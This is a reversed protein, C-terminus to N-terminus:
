DVLSLKFPNFNTNIDYVDVGEIRKLIRQIVYAPIVFLCAFGIKLVYDSIIFRVIHDISMFGLFGMLGVIIIFVAEGVLTSAISRFLFYKGRTLIKFKSITYINVFSGVISGFASAATVRFLNDLVLNYDQQQHWFSAGKIQLIITILLAFILTCILDYWIILRAYRYGYVEAIIDAILYTLPFIFSAGSELLPGVQIMKYAVINSAADASLYLMGLLIFYKYLYKKNM